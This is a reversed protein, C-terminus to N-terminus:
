EGKGSVLGWAPEVEDGYAGSGRGSHRPHARGSGGFVGTETRASVALWGAGRLIAEYSVLWTSACHGGSDCSPRQTGIKPMSGMRLALVLEVTYGHGGLSDHGILIM